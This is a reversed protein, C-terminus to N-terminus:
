ATGTTFHDGAPTNRFWCVDQLDEFSPSSGTLWSSGIRHLAEETSLPWQQLRDDELSGVVVLGQALAWRLLELVTERLEVGSGLTQSRIYHTFMGLSQYDDRNEALPLRLLGSRPAHLIAM